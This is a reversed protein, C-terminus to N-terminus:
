AVLKGVGCLLEVGLYDANGVTVGDNALATNLAPLVASFVTSTLTGLLTAGLGSLALTPTGLSSSATQTTGPPSPIFNGPDLLTTDAVPNSPVTVSGSVASGLGTGGTVTLQVNKFTSGIHIDSPVNNACDAATLDGTAGGVTLSFSLTGASIGLLTTLALTLNVDAQTNTATAYGSAPKAPGLNSPQAPVIATVSFTASPVGTLGVTLNGSLGAKQNALQVGGSVAQLLNVTTTLAAGGGQTLGFVSGLTVKNDNNETVSIASGLTTLDASSTPSSASLLNAAANVLQSVKVQSALVQDVTLASFGLQAALVGLSVNGTALGSYGVATMSINGFRGLGKNLEVLTSGDQFSAENVPQAVAKADLVASRPSFFDQYNSTATTQVSDCPCATATEPTFVKNTADWHGRVAVVSGGGNRAASLNAATTVSAADVGIQSVADLAALDAVLHDQRKQQARGGLDIAFSVAIILVTMTIATAVLVVGQEDTPEANRFGALTSRLPASM